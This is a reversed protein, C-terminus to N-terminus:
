YDRRGLTTLHDRANVTNGCKCNLLVKGMDVSEKFKDCVLTAAPNSAGCIGCTGIMYWLGPGAHTDWPNDGHQPHECEMEEKGIDNLAKYLDIYSRLSPVNETLSCAGM